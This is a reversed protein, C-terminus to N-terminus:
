KRCTSKKENRHIEEVRTERICITELEKCIRTITTRPLSFITALASDTLQNKKKTFYILVKNENTVKDINYGSIEPLEAVLGNFKDYTVGALDFLHEQTKISEYGCFLGDSVITDAGCAEDATQIETVCYKNFIGHQSLNSTNTGKEKYKRNNKIQVLGTVQSIETQIEVDCTWRGMYQNCIFTQQNVYCQSFIDAQCGQDSYTNQIVSKTETIEIDDPEFKFMQVDPQDFIMLQVTETDPNTRSEALYNTETDLFEESKINPIAPYDAM